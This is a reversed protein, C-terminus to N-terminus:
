VSIYICVSIRVITCTISCSKKRLPLLLHWQMTHVHMVIVCACVCLFLSLSLSWIHYPSTLALLTAHEVAIVYWCARFETHFDFLLEQLFNYLLSQEDHGSVSVRLEPVRDNVRIDDLPVMYNYMAHGAHEFAERLTAGWAHIQVDATHDLYEFKYEPKGDFSVGAEEAAEARSRKGRRRRPHRQPLAFSPLPPPPPEAAAM